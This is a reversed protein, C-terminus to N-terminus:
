RKNKQGPALNNLPITKFNTSENEDIKINEQEKPKLSNLIINNQDTASNLNMLDNGPKESSQGQIFSIQVTYVPSVQTKSVAVFKFTFSPDVEILQGATYLIKTNSTFPDSNDKTLYIEISNDYISSPVELNFTDVFFSTVSFSFHLM